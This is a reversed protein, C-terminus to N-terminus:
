KNTRKYIWFSSHRTKVRQFNIDQYVLSPDDYNELRSDVIIYDLDYKKELVRSPSRKTLFIHYFSLNENKYFDYTLPYEWTTEMFICGVNIKKDISKKELFRRVEDYGKHKANSYLYHNPALFLKNGMTEGEVVILPRSNNLLAVYVGNLLIGLGIFYLFYKGVGNKLKEIIYMTIPVAAILLPVHLRSHVPQWKLYLAFLIFSFLVTGFIFSWEIRPKNRRFINILFVLYSLIILIAQFINAGKSEHNPVGLLQFSRGGITIRQDDSQVGIVTHIGEVVRTVFPIIAPYSFHIAANKTINSIALPLSMESNSLHRNMREHSVPNSYIEFNRKFHSGNFILFILVIAGFSKVVNSFKVQKKYLLFLKYMGYFLMPAFCYVYGTGKTLVASPLCLAIFVDVISFGKKKQISWVILFYLSSVYFGLVLDNQTSSAELFVSPTIIVLLSGLLQLFPGFDLLKLLLSISFAAGIMCLWQICNAFIDNGSLGISHSILVEAFPPQFLQRDIFCAYHDLTGSQFWRVIRALHYTYSDATMPPYALATFLGIAVFVGILILLWKHELFSRDYSLKLSEKNRFLFLGQFVIITVWLLYISTIGFLDFHSILETFVYAISANLILSAVFLFRFSSSLDDQKSVFYQTTFM